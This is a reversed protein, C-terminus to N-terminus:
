PGGDRRPAASTRDALKPADELAPLSRLQALAQEEISHADSLYATLQDHIDDPM